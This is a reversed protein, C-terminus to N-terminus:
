SAIVLTSRCARAPVTATWILGAIALLLVAALGILLVQVIAAIAKGAEVALALGAVVVLVVALGSGGPRRHHTHAGERM